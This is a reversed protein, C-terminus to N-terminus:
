FGLALGVFTEWDTREVGAPPRADDEVSVGTKLDVAGTVAVTLTLNGVARFDAVDSFLPQWFGVLDVRVDDRLDRAVHLFVSLRGRATTGGADDLKEIELMPTAGLRVSGRDDDSLDHRLGAGLLWRRRLRQFPNHQIQGFLVTSWAPSLDRNHRLHAVVDRETEEGGSEEYAMAAQLRLRDRAGLWQARGGVELQVSETNGGSGSFLGDVGGTWGNGDEQYGELTNVITGARGPPAMAVLFTAVALLGVVRARGARAWGPLLAVLEGGAV